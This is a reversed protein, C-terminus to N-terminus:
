RFLSEVGMASKRMFKPISNPRHRHFWRFLPGLVNLTFLHDIIRYGRQKRLLLASALGLTRRKTHFEGFDLKIRYRARIAKPWRQKYAKKAARLDAVLAEDSPLFYFRRALLILHFFDRMHELDDVPLRAQEALEIMRPFLTFAAEGTRLAQDADRVFHRLIERVANNIFLSDWYVHLLPPIRVRRFFLKQAAFDGVYLLDRIVTDAHRLLELAAIARDEGLVGAVAQEVTQQEKFIRLACLTNLRIWVDRDNEELFALRRFRHWGGTQCWVSLGAVNQAASLEHAFREHDWGTFSPYEGAGEYEKRAQLELIKPQRVTFFAQNLPLYRFFDSEGHKMSVIFNPSDIDKLTTALTRRHWILDGIRHAGVTWTRLILTKNRKEFEPLLQNLMRNADAPTKLHLHTRIPDKVDVGDSEGIRLVLGDLQPFDDLVGRILCRYYADLEAPKTGLEAVVAPTTPIVDSTLLIRLKSERKVLDFLRAFEERYVEIQATVEPEHAPHPALHALDDFTITNFGAAEVEHCFRQLDAAIWDWQRRREPEGTALGHFPIKSWNVRKKEYGRFFPGIGDIIFWEM